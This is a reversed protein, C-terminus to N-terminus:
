EKRILNLPVIKPEGHCTDWKVGKCSKLSNEIRRSTDRKCLILHQKIPCGSVRTRMLIFSIFVSSYSAQLQVRWFSRCLIVIITLTNGYGKERRVLNRNIKGRSDSLLKSLLESLLSPSCQALTSSPLTMLITFQNCLSLLVVFKAPHLALFVCVCWFYVVNIFSCRHVNPVM